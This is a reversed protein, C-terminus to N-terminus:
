KTITKKHKGYDNDELLQRAVTLILKFRDPGLLTGGFWRSVIIAINNCNMLRIMESLRNGACNEGDDDYDHYIINNNNKDIYRYAFINHTANNYKKNSLIISKFLLVDNMSEVHCLHAQFTSKRDTIPEGHKINITNNNIITTTTINNTTNTTNITTNNNTTINTTTTNTTTDYNDITNDITSDINNDINDNSSSSSNNSNSSNNNSSNKTMDIVRNRIMEITSFLLSEGMMDTM